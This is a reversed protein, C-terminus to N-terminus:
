RDFGTLARGVDGTFEDADERDRDVKVWAGAMEEQRSSDELWDGVFKIVNRRQKLNKLFNENAKSFLRGKQGRGELDPGQRGRCSCRRVLLAEALCNIYYDAQATTVSYVSRVLSVERRM